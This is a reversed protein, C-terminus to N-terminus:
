SVCLLTAAVVAATETRLRTNGLAVPTFNNQLAFDIEDKTFDGEPGILITTQNILQNSLQGTKEKLSIKNQEECHAIFKNDGKNEKVFNIYKVPEHLVLLWAQQSQLMASILIGRLRDFKLFQKETRECILPVIETVGIEAAKELFWEFRSSNKVPSVAICVKKAPAIKKQTDIIKITCKKKHAEIIEATCITGLGDTINIQRGEVMRLVQVIHRSNEENLVIIDDISSVVETYFFPLVM